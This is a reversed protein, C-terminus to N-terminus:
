ALDTEQIRGSHMRLTAAVEQMETVAAGAAQGFTDHVTNATQAVHVSVEDSGSPPVRLNTAEAQMVHQVRSALDDIQKIVDNVEGPRLSIDNYEAM